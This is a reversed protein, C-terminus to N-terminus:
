RRLSGPSPRARGARRPGRTRRCWPPGQARPRSRRPGRGPPGRRARDQPIALGRALVPGPREHGPWEPTTVYAWTVKGRSGPETGKPLPHYHGWDDSLANVIALGRGSEEYPGAERPVPCEDAADWVMIVVGSDEHASDNRAPRGHLCVRIPPQRGIWALARTAQVANSTLESVVLETVDTFEKLGWERLVNAAHGRACGPASPSAGLELSDYWTWRGPSRSPSHRHPTLPQPRM